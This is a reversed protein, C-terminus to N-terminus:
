RGARAAIEAAAEVLDRATLDPVVAGPRRHATRPHEILVAKAGAAHAAEVDTEADGLMWSRTLDLRLREAAQLLLGPAPKRCDCPGSLEAIAGDPHHHCYFAADLAVGEAALLAAVREHVAELAALPVTGKAAAPQNSALVLAFGADRLRALGEAAGAVLVVDGPDYPSEFTGSRADLIPENVVGDRDVFAAATM